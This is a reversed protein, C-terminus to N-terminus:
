NVTVLTTVLLQMDKLFINSRTVKLFINFLPKFGQDRIQFSYYKVMASDFNQHGRVM